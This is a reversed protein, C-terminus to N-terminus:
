RGTPVSASRIAMKGFKRLCRWETTSKSSIVIEIVLGYAADEYEGPSVRKAIEESKIDARKPGTKGELMDSIAGEEGDPDAAAILGGESPAFTAEQLLLDGGGMSMEEMSSTVARLEGDLSSFFYNDSYLNEAGTRNIREIYPINTTWGLGLYENKTFSSDYILAM